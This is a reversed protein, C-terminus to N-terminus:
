KHDKNLYEAFSRLWDIDADDLAFWERQEGPKTGQPPLRKASFRNNIAYELVSPQQEAHSDRCRRAVSRRSFGIKYANGRKAVYVFGADTSVPLNPLRNM